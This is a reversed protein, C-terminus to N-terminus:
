LMLQILKNNYCKSLHALHASVCVLSLPLSLSDIFILPCYNSLSSLFLRPLFTIAQQKAFRSSPRNSSQGFNLSHIVCLCTGKLFKVQYFHLIYLYLAKESAEIVIKLILNFQFAFTSFLIFYSFGIAVAIYFSASIIISSHLNVYTILDCM